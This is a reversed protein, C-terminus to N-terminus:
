RTPPIRWLAGAIAINLEEVQKKDAGANAMIDVDHWQLAQRPDIGPTHTKVADKVEPLLALASKTKEDLQRYRDTM